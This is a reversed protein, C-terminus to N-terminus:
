ENEITQRRPDLVAALRDAALTIATVALTLLLGPYLSIWYQGSLLYSFGNAILRGLSPETAPTGLGLFSLTAELSIAAALQLPLIVLLPPLCNPLLHRWLLRGHSIGLLRAAALYDKEREVLAAARASRAFYAWQSAALALAVKALGPGSLALLALAILLAPFSLQLDALALVLRDWRGRFYGATLGLGTGLLFGLGTGVGAVLLSLRLGYVMASLLDRGQEDSGLLYIGGVGAASGPPLRADLIDLAAPDYPNQPVLWPGATAALLTLAILALALKGGASAYFRQLINM